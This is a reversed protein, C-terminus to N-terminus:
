ELHSDLAAWMPDVEGGVYLAARFAAHEKRYRHLQGGARVNALRDCLKLFVAASESRTKPYTLLQRTARNPGPENTVAWVVRAIDYGFEEELEIRQVNCDELVDHLWACVQMRKPPFGSLASYCLVQHEVDALHHTYPLSKYMQGAHKVGAYFRAYRLLVDDAEM